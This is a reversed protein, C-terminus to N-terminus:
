LRRAGSRTKNRARGRGRGRGRRTRRRGGNRAADPDVQLIHEVLVGNHFTNPHFIVGSLVDLKDTWPLWLGNWEKIAFLDTHFEVGGISSAVDKWFSAWNYTLIGDARLAEPSPHSADIFESFSEYAVEGYDPLNDPDEEIEIEKRAEDLFARFEGTKDEEALERLVNSDGDETFVRFADRIVKEASYRYKKSHFRKMFADLNLTSLVLITDPTASKVETVFSEEPLTIKYRFAVTNASRGTKGTEVLNRWNTGYAYWFGLPKGHLALLKLQDQPANHFATIKKPTFHFLTRSSAAAM